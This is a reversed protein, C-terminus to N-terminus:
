GPKRPRGPTRRSCAVLIIWTSGAPPPGRPSPSMKALASSSGNRRPSSMTPQRRIARPRVPDPGLAEHLEALWRFLAGTVHLNRWRSELELTELVAAFGQEYAKSDQLRYHRQYAHRLLVNTADDRNLSLCASLSTQPRAPDQTCSFVDGGRWVILEGSRLPVGVGNIEATCSGEELYFFCVLDAGLRSPDISWDPDGGWRGFWKVRLGLSTEFQPKWDHHYPLDSMSFRDMGHGERNEIRSHLNM